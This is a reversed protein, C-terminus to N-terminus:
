EEKVFWRAPNIRGAYTPRWQGQPTQVKTLVVGHPNVIFRCGEQPRLRRLRRILEYDQVPPFKAEEDPGSKERFYVNNKKSLSFPMGVYPWPWPDGCQLGHDDALTFRRGDPSQFTIAGECDGVYVRETFEGALPVLVQGFENIQFSGGAKGTWKRKVENVARALEVVSQTWVATCTAEVDDQKDVIDITNDTRARFVYHQGPLRAYRGKWTTPTRPRFVFETM